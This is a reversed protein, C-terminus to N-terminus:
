TIGINDASIFYLVKRTNYKYGIDILPRDGPVVPKSRLVLHSGGPWYNKLKEITKKCFIKTNKKVMFIFESGVKIVTEAAKKSSFWSYSILCDKTAGKRYKQIVGKKAEMIIKTCAATTGFDKQYKSHKM